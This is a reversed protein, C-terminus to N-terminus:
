SAIAGSTDRFELPGRWLGVLRDFLIHKNALVEIYRDWEHNEVMTEKPPNWGRCSACARM